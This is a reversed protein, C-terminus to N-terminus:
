VTVGRAHCVARLEVDQRLPSPLVLSQLAPLFSHSSLATALARLGGEGFPNHNISLRTLRQLAGPAAAARVFSQLGEDSIWNFSVNLSELSPLAGQGLASALAGFGQDRLQSSMLTMEQVDAMAGSALASALINVHCEDVVFSASVVRELDEASRTSSYTQNSGM